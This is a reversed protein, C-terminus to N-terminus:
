ALREVTSNEKLRLNEVDCDKIFILGPAKGKELSGFNKEIGLFEAGNHTAWTFLKELPIDPFHKHITKIEDLISLSWNSAYSDTGITMKAGLAIFANYDPLKNEIYLNANPCTAFYIHSLLHSYQSRLWELDRSPTYTNHVFQIKKCKNLMPLVTRLSSKHGDKIWSLDTGTSALMEHLPGSKNEFLEKEGASEQNHICVIDQELANILSFLKPTVTYPAHPVISSARLRSNQTQLERQLSIGKEFEAETRSPNLDFIEIFTHYYLNNKAKRAFSDSTNSIDGVAVVGNELMEKEAAAISNKIESGSAKGRNQVFESIFGNMGKKGSIKGKLYSLELHCHTNIFGPLIIGQLNTTQQKNNTTELGVVRGNDDVTISGNKVPPSSIPFIWSASFTRM